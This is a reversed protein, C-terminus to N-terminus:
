TVVLGDTRVYDRRNQRGDTGLDKRKYALGWVEFFLLTAGNGYTHSQYQVDMNHDYTVSTFDLHKSFLM